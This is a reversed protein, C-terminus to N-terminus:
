APCAIPLAPIASMIEAMAPESADVLWVVNAKAMARIQLVDTFATGTILPDGNAATVPTPSEGPQGYLLLTNAVLTEPDSPCVAIATLYTSAGLSNIFVGSALAVQSDLSEPGVGLALLYDTFQTGADSGGFGELWETGSFTIIELSSGAVTPPFQAVLSTIITPEPPPEASQAMATGAVLGLSVLSLALSRTLVAISSAKGLPKM